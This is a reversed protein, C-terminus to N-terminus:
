SFNPFPNPRQFVMGIKQRLMVSNLTNISKDELFIDGTYNLVMEIKNEANDYIEKNLYEKYNKLAIVVNNNLLINKNNEISFLYDLKKNKVKNLSNDGYIYYNIKLLDSDPTSEIGSFDSYSIIDNSNVTIPSEENTSLSDTFSIKSSLKSLLSKTKTM